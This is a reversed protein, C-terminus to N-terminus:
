ALARDNALTQNHATTEQGSKVCHVSILPLGLSYLRRLVGQLAAQDFRGCLITVPPGEGTSEVSITLGEVWNAWSEDLEGPVKIQYTVPKDLTLKLKDNM